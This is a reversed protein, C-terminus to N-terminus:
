GSSYKNEGSRGNSHAKNDGVSSTNTTKKIVSLTTAISIEVGTTKSSRGWIEKMGEIEKGGEQKEELKPRPGNNKQVV